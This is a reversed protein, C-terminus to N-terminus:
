QSIGQNPLESPQAVASSQQTGASRSAQLPPWIREAVAPSGPMHVLRVAVRDTWPQKEPLGRERAVYQSRAQASTFEYLCVHRAWGSVAVMTRMRVAGPTALMSPMRARAFWACAEDEFDPAVNFSGLQICPAPGPHGAHGAHGLDDPHDAHGPHSSHLDADDGLVRDDEVLLSSREGRRLALMARDTETLDAHFEAATPALFTKATRAGFILIFQTGRPVAPDDIFTFRGPASASLSETCRYHAGWLVGDRAVVMPIYRNHLWDLYAARSPATGRAIDTGAVGDTGALDDADPLDHTDPLDYWTFWYATDVNNRGTDMSIYNM